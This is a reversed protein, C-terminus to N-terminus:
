KAGWPSATLTPQGTERAYGGASFGVHDAERADRHRHSKRWSTVYRRAQEWTVGEVTVDTGCWCTESLKVPTPDSM